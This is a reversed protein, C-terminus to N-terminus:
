QWVRAVFFFFLFNSRYSEHRNSASDCKEHVRDLASVNTAMKKEKEKTNKNMVTDNCSSEIRTVFAHLNQFRLDLAVTFM